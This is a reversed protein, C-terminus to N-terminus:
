GPLGARGWGKAFYVEANRRSAVDLLPERRLGVAEATRQGGLNDGTTRAVVPLEPMHLQALFLARRVAESAFGNAWTDPRFIYTLNLAPRDQLSLHSVGALGILRGPHSRTEVRWVGFGHLDWHHM